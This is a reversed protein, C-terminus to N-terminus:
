GLTKALPAEPRTAGPTSLTRVFETQRQVLEPLVTSQRCTLDLDLVPSVSERATGRSSIEMALESITTFDNGGAKM